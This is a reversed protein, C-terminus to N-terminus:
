RNQQLGFYVTSGLSVTTSMNLMLINNPPVYLGRFFPSNDAWFLNPSAITPSFAIGQTISTFKAGTTATGYGLTATIATLGNLSFNYGCIFVGGFTPSVLAVNGNLPTMSVVSANCSQPTTSAQAFALSPLLCLAVALLVRRLSVM